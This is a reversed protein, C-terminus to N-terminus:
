KFFPGNIKAQLWAMFFTANSGSHAKIKQVDYTFLNLYQLCKLANILTDKAICMKSIQFFGIM